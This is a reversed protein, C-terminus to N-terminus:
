PGDSDEGEPEALAGSGEELAMVIEVTDLSDMLSHAGSPLRYLKRGCGTCYRAEDRIRSKCNSCTEM